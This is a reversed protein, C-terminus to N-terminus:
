ITQKPFILASCNNETGFMSPRKVWIRKSNKGRKLSILEMGGSELAQSMTQQVILYFNLM